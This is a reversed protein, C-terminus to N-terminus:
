FVKIRPEPPVYEYTELSEECVWITGSPKERILKMMQDAVFAPTQPVLSNLTHAVMAAYRENRIKVSKAINSITNGPAIAIVKIKTNEYNEKMGLSLTLGVVGFKTAVYIPCSPNAYCGVLSSTNIIVGESGTKHNLIYNEVALLSGHVAGTLNVAIEKEYDQEDCIGANNVLIDINGFESITRKFADEFSTKDSIDTHVFLVRNKGFENAFEDSATIGNKINIDALVVGRVGNKLLARVVELGIGAAGGTVLAVKGEIEFMKRYQNM